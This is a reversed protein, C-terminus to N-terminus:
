MHDDDVFASKETHVSTDDQNTAADALMSKLTEEEEEEENSQLGEVPVSEMFSADPCIQSFIVKARKFTDDLHLDGGNEETVFLNRPWPSGERGEESAGDYGHLHTGEEIYYRRAADTDFNPAIFTAYGMEEANSTAALLESKSKEVISAAEEKLSQLCDEGKEVVRKDVPVTTTIYLLTAGNSCVNASDDLQIVHVANPNGVTHCLPPIVAVSLGESLARGSIVSVRTVVLSTILGLYSSLSQGRTSFPLYDMNCVLSACKINRGETDIIATVEKSQKKDSSLCCIQSIGRGLIYTGGWVACMRCFAQAIEASGYLCTIFPTSGYRGISDVHRYLADLAEGTKVKLRKEDGHIPEKLLCLGYAIVNRLRDPVKHKELYDEFFTEDENGESSVLEPTNQPRRLARGMILDRENLTTAGGKHGEKRQGRDITHQLVRMLCRKELAQLTNSSFIDGKNAPVKELVIGGSHVGRDSKLEGHAYFVADLAKFDLYRGVESSIITDVAAGCALVLRHNTEICFHRSHFYARNPTLNHDKRYSLFIPSLDETSASEEAEPLKDMVYGYCAPHIKEAKKKGYVNLSSVCEVNQVILEHKALNSYANPERFTKPRELLPEHDEERKSTPPYAREGACKKFFESLALGTSKHGYYENSDLHLVKKGARALSCAVVSELLGTGVVVCDFQKDLPDGSADEEKGKADFDCM